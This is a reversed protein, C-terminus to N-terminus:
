FLHAAIAAWEKQPTLCFTFLTFAALCNRIQAM